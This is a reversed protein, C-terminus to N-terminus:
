RGGMANTTTPATTPLRAKAWPDLQRQGAASAAGNLLDQVHECHCPIEAVRQSLATVFVMYEALKTDLAKLSQETTVRLANLRGDTMAEVKEFHDVLESDVADLNAFKTSLEEHYSDLRGRLERLEEQFTSESPSGPSPTGALPPQSAEM